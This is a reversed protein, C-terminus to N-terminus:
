RMSSATNMQSCCNMAVRIWTGSPRRDSSQEGAQRKDLKMVGTNRVSNWATAAAPPVALSSFVRRLSQPHVIEGLRATRHKSDTMLSSATMGSGSAASRYRVRFACDCALRLFAIPAIACASRVVLPPYADSSM